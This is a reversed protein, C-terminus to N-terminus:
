RLLVSVQVTEGPRYLDREAYVFASLPQSPLGAVDFESLDLAPERFALVAIHEGKRAVVVQQRSPVGDFRVRGEGDTVASQVARNQGDLLEVTVGAAPKGDALSAAHVEMADAYVRAHLGIDTVFFHSVKHQYQFRGPERMVAVYFGPRKLEKVGEVPIHTVTRTNPKAGTTYRAAYVSEILPHMRDLDWLDMNQERYHSTVFQALRDDRVRLFEIDVEPVNVSMIPLGDTLRAPLVSGRSAFGFAPPMERTEVTHEEDTALQSGNAAPLGARLNVVYKSSPAVHPFYLVRRNDALVWGGKVPDGDARRVGLFEGHRDNPSLLTNFTLALAPADDFSREAVDILAIPQDDARAQTTASPEPTRSVVLWVAAAAIVALTLILPLLRKM